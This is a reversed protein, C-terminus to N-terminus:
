VGKGHIATLLAGQTRKRGVTGMEKELMALKNFLEPYCLMLDTLCARRREGVLRLRCVGRSEESPSESALTHM